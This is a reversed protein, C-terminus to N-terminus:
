SAVAILLLAVSLRLEDIVFMMTNPSMFVRAHVQKFTLMYFTFKIDCILQCNGYPTM